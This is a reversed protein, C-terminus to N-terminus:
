SRDKEIAFRGAPLRTKSNLQKEIKDFDIASCKGCGTACSKSQFSRYIMRGLYVLAAAFLLIIIIQQFM